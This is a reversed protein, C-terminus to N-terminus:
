LWSDADSIVLLISWISHQGDSPWIEHALLKTPLIDVMKNQNLNM